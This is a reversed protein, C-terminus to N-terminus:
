KGWAIDKIPFLELAAEACVTQNCVLDVGIFGWSQSQVYDDPISQDRTTSDWSTRGVVISNPSKEFLMRVIRIDALMM